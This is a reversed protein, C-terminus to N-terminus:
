ARGTADKEFYNKDVFMEVKDWINCACICLMLLLSNFNKVRFYIVKFIQYNFVVNRVFIRAVILKLYVQKMQLGM